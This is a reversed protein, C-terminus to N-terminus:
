LALFIHTSSMPSNASIIVTSTDKIECVNCMARVGFKSYDAVLVVKTANDIVSKRLTAEDSIFDTIGKETIGGAGIFAIDINYNSLYKEALSGSLSFEGNRLKGGALFVDCGKQTLAIATHM